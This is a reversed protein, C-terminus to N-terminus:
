PTAFSSAVATVIVAGLESKLQPAFLEKLASTSNSAVVSAFLLGDMGEFSSFWPLM